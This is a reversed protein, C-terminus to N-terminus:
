SGQRGAHDRSARRVSALLARARNGADTAQGNAERTAQGVAETHTKRATEHSISAVKGIKRWSLAPTAARLRLVAIQRADLACLWAFAVLFDDWDKGTPEIQLQKPDQAALEGPKLPESKALNALVGAFTKAQPRDVRVWRETAFARMLRAEAEHASIAGPKSYTVAHPDLWFQKDAPTDPEGARPGGLGARADARDREMNRAMDEVSLGDAEAAIAAEVSAFSQRTSAYRCGEAPAEFYHAEPVPMRWAEPSLPSWYDPWDTKLTHWGAYPRKDAAARTIARQRGDADLPLIVTERGIKAAWAYRVARTRPDRVLAAEFPARNDWIVRVVVGIPPEADIIKYWARHGLVGSDLATDMM